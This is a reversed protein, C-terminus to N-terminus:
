RGDQPEGYRRVYEKRFAQRARGLLTGVSGTNLELAAAVEDYSLGSGRLLLLEADRAELAALVGRVNEREEAGAMVAEPTPPPDSKAAQSEYNASRSQRRLENLGTRVATRYLWGGAKEGQAAPTRWFKWFVEVALEEARSPDRTVRAIVRAIREWHTKFVEDFNFSARGM